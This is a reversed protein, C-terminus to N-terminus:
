EKKNNDEEKDTDSLKELEEEIEKNTESMLQPNNKIKNYEEQFKDKEIKIIEDERLLGLKERVSKLDEYIQKNRQHTSFVLGFLLILFVCLGYLGFKFISLMLIIAAIAM